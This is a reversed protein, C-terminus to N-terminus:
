FDEPPFEPMQEFNELTMALDMYHHSKDKPPSTGALGNRQKHMMQHYKGGNKRFYGVQDKDVYGYELGTVITEEPDLALWDDWKLFLNRDHALNLWEKLTLPKSHTSKMKSISNQINNLRNRIQTQIKPSIKLKEYHYEKPDIGAIYSSALDKAKEFTEYNNKHRYNILSNLERSFYEKGLTLVQYIEFYPIFLENPDAMLNLLQQKGPVKGEDVLKQCIKRFAPNSIVLNSLTVYDDDEVLQNCITEILIPDTIIDLIAPNAQYQLKTPTAMKTYIVPVPHEKSEDIFENTIGTKKVSAKALPHKEPKARGSKVAEPNLPCNSLNTGESHCLKCKGGGIQYM